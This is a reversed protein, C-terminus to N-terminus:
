FYIIHIATLSIMNLHCIRYPYGYVFYLIGISLISRGTSNAKINIAKTGVTIILLAGVSFVILIIAKLSVSEM